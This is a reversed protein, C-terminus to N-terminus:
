AYEKEKILCKAAKSQNETAWLPQLNTYHCAERLQERNTLDYFALPVKHDIEWTKVGNKRGYNEWNMGEKFQRELYSKLEPITCGLDHIASGGKQGNKIADWLRTRLRMKLRYQLDNRVKWNVYKRADARCKDQNKNRWQTNYINMKARNNKRYKRNYEYFLARNEKFYELMRAAIILRNKIYYKKKQAALRKKNKENYTKQWIKIRAANNKRYTKGYEKVWSQNKDRWAETREKETM